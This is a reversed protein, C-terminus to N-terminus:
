LRFVFYVCQVFYAEDLAVGHGLLARVDLGEARRDLDSVGAAAHEYLVEGAPPCRTHGIFRGLTVLAPLGFSLIEDFQARLM